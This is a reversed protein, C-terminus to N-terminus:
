EPVFSGVKTVYGSVIVDTIEGREHVLEVDIESPRDVFRGQKITVKKNTTLGHEFLYVAVPGAASGTAIDEVSGRNDWTRGEFNNIDVLYLFKAQYKELMTELETTKFAVKSLGHEIPVVLYPLGTTIVQAPYDHPQLHGIGLAEYFPEAQASSLTAIFEPAGQHMSAKFHKGEWLSSLEVVTHNLAISWNCQQQPTAISEHLHYTLGLLPHGAFDLEEEMTFIWARYPHANTNIFISEFQRMERTWAQMKRKDLPEDFDYFITLGNGQLKHKSFVDVLKCHM